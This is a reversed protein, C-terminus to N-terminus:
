EGTAWEAKGAALLTPQRQKLVSSSLPYDLSCTKNRGFEVTLSEIHSGTRTHTTAPQIGTTSKLWWILLRSSEHDLDNERPLKKFVDVLHETFHSFPYLSNKSNIKTM